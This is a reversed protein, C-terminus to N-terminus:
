GEKGVIRLEHGFVIDEVSHVMRIATCLLRNGINVTAADTFDGNMDGERWEAIRSTVTQGPHYPLLGYGKATTFSQLVNPGPYVFGATPMSALEDSLDLPGIGTNPEDSGYLQKREEYRIPFPGVLNHRVMPTEHLWVGLGRRKAESLDFLSAYTFRLSVHDHVFTWRGNNEERWRAAATLDVEAYDIGDGARPERHMISPVMVPTQKPILLAGAAYTGHVREFCARMFDRDGVSQLFIGAVPPLNEPVVGFPLYFLRNDLVSPGVHGAPRPDPTVNITVGSDLMMQRFDAGRLVQGGEFAGLARVRDRPTVRVERYGGRAFQLMNLPAWARGVDFIIQRTRRLTGVVDCRMPQGPTSQLRELMAIGKPAVMQAYSSFYVRLAETMAESMADKIQGCALQNAYTARATLTTTVLLSAYAEVRSELTSLYASMKDKDQRILGTTAQVMTNFLTNYRRYTTWNGPTAVGINGYDDYASWEVVNQPHTVGGQENRLPFIIREAGARTVAVLAPEDLMQRVLRAWAHERAGVARRAFERVETDPIWEPTGNLYRDWVNTEHINEAPFLFNAQWIAFLIIQSWKWDRQGYKGDDPTFLVHATIADWLDLILGKSWHTPLNYLNFSLPWCMQELLVNMYTEEVGGISLLTRLRESVPSKRTTSESLQVSLKSAVDTLVRTSVRLNGSLTNKLEAVVYQAVESAMMASAGMLMREFILTGHEQSLGANRTTQDIMEMPGLYAGVRARLVLRPVDRGQIAAHYAARDPDDAYEVRSFGRFLNRGPVGPAQIAQDNNRTDIGVANAALGVADALGRPSQGLPVEDYLQLMDKRVVREHVPGLDGSIMARSLRADYGWRKKYLELGWSMNDLAMDMRFRFSSMRTVETSLGPYRSLEIKKKLSWDGEIVNRGPLSITELRTTRGPVGGSEYRKVLRQEVDVYGSADLGTQSESNMLITRWFSTDDLAIVVSMQGLSAGMPAVEISPVTSPIQMLAGTEATSEAVFDSLPKVEEQSLNSGVNRVQPPNSATKEVQPTAEIKQPQEGEQVRTEAVYTDIAAGNKDIQARLADEDTEGKANHVVQVKRGATQLEAVDVRDGGAGFYDVTVGAHTFKKSSM